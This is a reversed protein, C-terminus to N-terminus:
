AAARLGVPRDNQPDFGAETADKGNKDVTLMKAIKTVTDCDWPVVSGDPM